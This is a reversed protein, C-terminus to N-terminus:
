QALSSCTRTQAPKQIYIYIRVEKKGFDQQLNCCRDRVSLHNENSYDHAYPNQGNGLATIM